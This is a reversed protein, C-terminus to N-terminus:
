ASKVSWTRWVVYLLSVRSAHPFAGTCLSMAVLYRGAATWHTLLGRNAHLAEGAPGPLDGPRLLHLTDRLDGAGSPRGSLALCAMAAQLALRDRLLAVPTDPAMLALHLHALAAGSVFAVHEPSEVGAPTVWRGMRALSDIDGTVSDPTDTM